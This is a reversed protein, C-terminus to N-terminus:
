KIKVNLAIGPVPWYWPGTLRLAALMTGGVIRVTEDFKRVYRGRDLKALTYGPVNFITSEPLTPEIIMLEIPRGRKAAAANVYGLMQEIGGDDIHHLCGHFLIADFNELIGSYDKTFDIVLFEQKPYREKATEIRAADIDAGVYSGDEFIVSLLGTGCGIELTKNFVKGDRFKNIIQRQKDYDGHVARQLLNYVPPPLDFM